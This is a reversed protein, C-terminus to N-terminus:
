CMALNSTRSPTKEERVSDVMGPPRAGARTRRSAKAIVCAKQPFLDVLEHLTTIAKRKLNARKLSGITLARHAARSMNLGECSEARSWEACRSWVPCSAMDIVM